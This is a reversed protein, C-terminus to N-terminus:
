NLPPLSCMMMRLGSIIIQISSRERAKGAKQFLEGWTGTSNISVAGPDTTALAQAPMMVAERREFGDKLRQAGTLLNNVRSPWRTSAMMPKELLDPLDHSVLFLWNAHHQDITAGEYELAKV